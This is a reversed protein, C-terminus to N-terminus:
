GSRTAQLSGAPVELHQSVCALTTVAGRRDCLPLFLRLYDRKFGAFNHTIRYGDPEGTTKCHLYEFALDRRFEAIPHESLRTGDLGPVYLVRFDLFRYDQPDEPQVDVMYTSVANNPELRFDELRVYGDQRSQNWTEYAQLMPTSSGTLRRITKETHLLGDVGLRIRMQSDGNAYTANYTVTDFM